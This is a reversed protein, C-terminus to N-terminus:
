QGRQAELLYKGPEPVYGFKRNVALMPANLSDNDTRFTQMGYKRAYRVALLKLAQALKRGRYESRVGTMLNYAMREEPILQVAALGVYEDGYGAAIQGEPRYWDSGCVQDVFQDFTIWDGVWGPMEMGTARNVEYLKRRAETSDNMDALSIFRFGEAELAPILPAFPTEDFTTLDLASEFHHRRISFGRREAFGLGVPDDDRVESRLHTAGHEDLSRLGDNWLAAGIGRGRAHPFVGVWASFEGPPYWDEHATYGYGLVCGDADVAVMRRCIRGPPMFEHWLHFQALSVPVREFTNLIDVIAQFDSEPRALRIVVGPDSVHVAM